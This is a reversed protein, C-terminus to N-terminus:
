TTHRSYFNLISNFKVIILEFLGIHGCNKLNSNFIEINELTLNFM